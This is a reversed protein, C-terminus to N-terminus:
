EHEPMKAVNKLFVEPTLVESDGGIIVEWNNREKTVEYAVRAESWSIGGVVFIIIRPIKRSGQDAKDKHWRGYRNSAPASNKNAGQRQDSLFPFQNVDLKGEIADEIIDKIIPTWRSMQYTGETIRPRRKSTWISSKSGDAVVNVGLKSMNKIAAAQEDPIQAHQMLKTLNEASIGNKSQIYLLIIRIKDSTTVNQDLLVPVINRMQDKIKEGDADEGMALDQEVKCLKDIYGQYNKMCEEAMHVHTSLKAFEAQHQPVKKILQALDRIANKDSGSQIKKDESFKKMRKTVNQSVVAIHQHRLEEWLDDNEDLIVEKTVGKSVEFKYVNNDIELLDYAMAQFTLEHLLPSTIDFGRDIILLQSKAKEAGEGMTPEDAKYKDLREQLIQALQRAGDSEGRYRISPFEGLTNCLTALQEAMGLLYSSRGPTSQSAHFLSYSEQPSLSFIQSEFPTFSINVEVLSKMKKAVESKSLLKFLHDPIVATFYVHAAKYLASNSTKFDGILKNISEETPSILYIADMNPMPQRAKELTEVITVGEATLQHMKTCASVMKMSFKDVLLVRWDIKGKSQNHRIVDNLIRNEVSTKLVMTDNV